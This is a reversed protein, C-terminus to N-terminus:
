LVIDYMCPSTEQLRLHLHSRLPRVM